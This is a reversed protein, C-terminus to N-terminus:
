NEEKKKKNKILDNGRKGAFYRDRITHYSINYKNSIERFSLVEGNVEVKHVNRKNQAQGNYDIWTCNCPEYDGNVDIREITLNEKYGNNLAWEIFTIPNHWEKCVSIGRGGYNHFNKVNPNNCRQMMNAWITYVRTNRYGKRTCGCSKVKEYKFQNSSILREGGCDCKAKWLVSNYLREETKEVITLKGIRKGILDLSNRNSM